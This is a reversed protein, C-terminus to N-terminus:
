ASGLASLILASIGLLILLLLGTAVTFGGFFRGKWKKKNSSIKHFSLGGGVMSLGILVLLLSTFGTSFGILSAIVFLGFAGLGLPELKRDNASGNPTKEKELDKEQKTEEYVEREILPSKKPTAYNKEVHKVQDITSQTVANNLYTTFEPQHRADVQEALAPSQIIQHNNFDRGYKKGICSGLIFSFLLLSYLVRIM